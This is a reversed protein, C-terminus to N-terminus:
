PTARGPCRPADADTFLLDDGDPQASTLLDPDGALNILVPFDNQDSPVQTPDITISKRYHWDSDYWGAHATSALLVISLLLM